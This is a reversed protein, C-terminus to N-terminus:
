DQEYTPINPSTRLGTPAIDLILYKYTHTFIYALIDVQRGEIYMCYMCQLYRNLDTM